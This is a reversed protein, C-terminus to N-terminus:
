PGAGNMPQALLNESLRVRRNAKSVPQGALVLSAARLAGDDCAKQFSESAATAYPHRDAILQCKQERGYGESRRCLAEHIAESSALAQNHRVNRAIDVELGTRAMATLEDAAFLDPAADRARLKECFDSSIERHADSLLATVAQRCLLDPRARDAERETMRCLKRVPRPLSTGSYRDDRM